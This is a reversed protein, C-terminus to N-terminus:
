GKGQAGATCGEANMICVPHVLQLLADMSVSALTYVLSRGM